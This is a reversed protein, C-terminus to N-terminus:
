RCEERWSEFAMDDAIEQWAQEQDQKWLVLCPCPHEDTNWSEHFDCYKETTEYM